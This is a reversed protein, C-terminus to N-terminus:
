GPPAEGEALFATRLTERFEKGGAKPPADLHEAPDCMTVRRFFEEPTIEMAGLLRELSSLTVVRTAWVRTLYGGSFGARVEIETQNLPHAEIVRQLIEILQQQLQGPM